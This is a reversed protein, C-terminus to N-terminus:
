RACRIFGPAGREDIIAAWWGELAFSLRRLSRFKLLQDVVAKVLGLAAFLPWVIGFRKRALLIRNRTGLYLTFKSGSSTFPGSTGGGVHRVISDHAYGLRFAGRRLCWDVDECYVFFDPDMVGVTDIYSRPVYMSAGSIFELDKEVESVDPSTDYAEGLGLCVGDGWWSRWKMGGWTQVRGDVAGILRSGVIGYNGAIQHRVLAALADPDPFTDPNLVWIGNWGAPAAAICANVGGAYGLNEGPNLVILRQKYEGLVFERKGGGISSAEGEPAGASIFDLSTLAGVLHDFVVSGGNECIVISFNRYRSAALSRLCESIHKEDRTSVIAVVVYIQKDRPENV